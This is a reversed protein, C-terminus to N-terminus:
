IQKPPIVPISSFDCACHNNATPPVPVAAFDAPYCVSVNWASDGPNITEPLSWFNLAAYTKSVDSQWFVPYFHAMYMLKQAPECPFTQRTWQKGKPVTVTTLTKGTKSDIVEVAVNYDTWCSDKALTYYCTIAWSPATCCLGLSMILAKFNMYKGWIFIRIKVLYVCLVISENILSIM